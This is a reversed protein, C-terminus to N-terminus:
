QDLTARLLLESLRLIVLCIFTSKFNLDFQCKKTGLLKGTKGNVSAARM